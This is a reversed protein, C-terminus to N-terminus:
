KVHFVTTGIIVIVCISPIMSLQINPHTTNLFLHTIHTLATIFQCSLFNSGCHQDASHLHAKYDHQRHCSVQSRSRKFGSGGDRLTCMISVNILNTKTESLFKHQKQQGEINVRAGLSFLIKYMPNNRMQCCYKQQQVTRFKKLLNLLICWYSYISILNWQQKQSYQTMNM